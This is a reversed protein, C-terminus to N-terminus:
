NFNLLKEKSKTNLRPSQGHSTPNEQRKIITIIVIIIIAVTIIVLANMGM